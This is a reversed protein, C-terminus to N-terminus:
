NVIRHNPPCFDYICQESEGDKTKILQKSYGDFCMSCKSNGKGGCIACNHIRAHCPNSLPIIGSSASAASTLSTEQADGALYHHHYNLGRVNSRSARDGEASDM